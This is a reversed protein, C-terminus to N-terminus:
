RPHPADVRAVASDLLWASRGNHLEVHLWGGRDEIIRLETGGPLAESFRRPANRSDAARATAETAIVVAADQQARRPDFAASALLAAWIALAVGAALRLGPRPRLLSVALLAAGIAFCAAALVALRAAPLQERWFFFTDGLGGEAPTPVWDPLLGRAHALNQRAREHSTDLLLARRYALIAAGPREAQLAANGRNTEIDANHVGADIAAAFLREAEAFLALREDRAASEMARSYTDVAQDIRERERDTATADAPIALTLTLGLLLGIAADRTWVARGRGRLSSGIRRRTLLLGSM